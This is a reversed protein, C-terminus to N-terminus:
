GPGLDSQVGAPLTVAPLVEDQKKRGRRKELQSGTRKDCDIQTRKLDERM